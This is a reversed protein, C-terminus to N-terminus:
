RPEDGVLPRPAAFTTDVLNTQEAQRRVIFEHLELILEPQHRLKQYHSAPLWLADVATDAVTVTTDAPGIPLGVDGVLGRPGIRRQRQWTRHSTLRYSTLSGNLVIFLGISEANNGPTLNHQIFQSPALPVRQFHSQLPASFPAPDRLDIPASRHRWEFSLQCQEAYELAEDLTAPAFFGAEAIAAFRGRLAPSLSSLIVTIDAARLEAVLKNVASLASQEVGTVAAFDVVVVFPRDTLVSAEQDLVHTRIRSELAAASGFFLYGHLEFVALRDSHRRLIARELPTRESLSPFGRGSGQNRVPDIQSYRVTFIASAAILGAGIGPLIGLWAITVVIGMSLVQDVRNTTQRLDKVWLTVLSLGLLVLLAGPGFRPIFGIFKVAVAGLLALVLGTAFPVTRRTVGLHAHLESGAVSHFSPPVCLPATVMAALGTLRLERDLDVRRGQLEAIGTVNLVLAIATVAAVGVMGPLAALIATWNANALEGITLLAVGQSEPFPGVLWGSSEAAAVSSTAAVIGYFAGLGVLLVVGTAYPPVRRSQSMAWFALGLGLGPLWFQAVSFTFLRPLDGSTLRASVMVEFGGKFLLWGSGGIFGQIVTTPVYQVFRGLQLRGVAWLAIGCVASTVALLVFVDVVNTRDDAAFSAALAAVVLGPGDQVIVALPVIQSRAALWMGVLGCSVTFAGAALPLGVSLDGAFIIAAM